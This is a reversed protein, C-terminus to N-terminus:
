AKWCDVIYASMEHRLSLSRNDQFIHTFSPLQWLFLCPAASVASTEVILLIKLSKADKILMFKWFCANNGYVPFNQQEYSKNVFHM